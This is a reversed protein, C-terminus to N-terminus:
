ESGDTAAGSVRAMFSEINIRGEGLQGQYDENSDGSYIDDSTAMLTGMLTSRATGHDQGIALALAGSAIAASMSTGSWPAQSLAPYPGYISVGPAALEVKTRSFNATATKENDLGVSTLSLKHDAGLAVHAMSAPYTVMGDDSDGASTVVLVGRATAIRLAELVAQVPQHAGLSLNIVDAGNDVAWYIAQALDAAEGVGDPGLVRLPMITARPAIQRVIGAVNTGHGYGRNDLDGPEDDPYDDNARFDKWEETPSLAEFLAPHKLDVGTDIIAIKVGYGLNDALVHGQQLRIQHWAATNEPMWLFEAEEGGGWVTSLGGGWVTSLGGGWVTSMGGGWVTSMGGGWVSSMGEMEVSADPGAFVQANPELSDDAALVSLGARDATAYESDVGLVAVDGPEWFLLEGGYREAMAEGTDDPGLRLTLLYEPGALRGAPAM